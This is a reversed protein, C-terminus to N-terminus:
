RWFELLFPLFSPSKLDSIHHQHTFLCPQNPIRGNSSLGHASSDICGSAAEVRGGSERVWPSVSRRSTNQTRPGDIIPEKQWDFTEGRAEWRENILSQLINPPHSPWVSSHTHARHTHLDCVRSHANHTHLDCVILHVLSQLSKESRHIQKNTKKARGAPATYIRIVSM